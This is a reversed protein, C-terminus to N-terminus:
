KLFLTIRSFSTGTNESYEENTYFIAEDYLCLVLVLFHSANSITAADHWCAFSRQRQLIKLSRALNTITETEDVSIDLRNFEFILQDRTADTYFTDNKLRM